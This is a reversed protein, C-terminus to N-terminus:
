RTRSGVGPVCHTRDSILPAPDPSSPQGVQTGESASARAFMLSCSGVPVSASLAKAFATSTRGLGGMPDIMKRRLM